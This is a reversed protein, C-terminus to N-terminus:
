FFEEFSVLIPTSRTGYANGLGEERLLTNHVEPMLRKVGLASNRTEDMVRKGGAISIVYTFM